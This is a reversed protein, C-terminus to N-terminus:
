TTTSGFTEVKLIEHESLLQMSIKSSIEFMIFIVNNLNTLNVGGCNSDFYSM